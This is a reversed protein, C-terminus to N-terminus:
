MAANRTNSSEQRQSDRKSSSFSSEIHDQEALSEDRGPMEHRSRRQHSERTELDRVDPSPRGSRLWAKNPRRSKVNQDPLPFVRPAKAVQIVVVRVVEGRESNGRQREPRYKRWAASRDDTRSKAASESQIRAKAKTRVPERPPKMASTDTVTKM